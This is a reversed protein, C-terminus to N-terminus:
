EHELIEFTRRLMNGNNDTIDAILNMDPEVLAYIYMEDAFVKASKLAPLVADEPCQTEFVFEEPLGEWDAISNDEVSIFQAFMGPVSVAFALILTFLTKKMITMGSTVRQRRSQHNSNKKRM